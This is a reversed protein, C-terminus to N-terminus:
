YRTSFYIANMYIDGLNVQQSSFDAPKQANCYFTYSGSSLVPFVASTHMSFERRKTDTGDLVGARTSEGLTSPATSVGLVVTTAEGFIVAYAKCEVLVWGSAPASIVVSDCNKVSTPINSCSDGNKFDIGATTLNDSMEHYYGLVDIVLHATGFSNLVAIEQAQSDINFFTKVSGANAV